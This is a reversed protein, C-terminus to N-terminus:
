ECPDTPPPSAPGPQGLLAATTEFGLGISIGDCTRTPDQVGEKMIDSAQRIQTAISDFTTGSCLSSSLSGALQKLSQVFEETDLVGGINGLTGTKHDPSLQVTFRGHHIALVLGVGSTQQLVTLDGLDTGSVLTNGVLYSFLFSQKASGDPKLLEPFAHWTYTGNSLEADTPAIVKGDEDVTGKVSLFQTNLLTYEAKAGLKNAAILISYSGDQMSLSASNSPDASVGSIIQMINKGYSNDLGGKGSVFVDKKKAGQVPQCHYSNDVTSTLGDIDFGYDQWAEPDFNGKRDTEGLFIKTFAQVALGAGDPASNAPPGPPLAAGAPDTRYKDQDAPDFIPGAPAICTFDTAQPLPPLLGDAGVRLILCTDGPDDLPYPFPKVLAGDLEACARDASQTHVRLVTPNLEIDSGSIANAAGPIDVQGFSLVFDGQTVQASATFPSGATENLSTAATVLPTLTATVHDGTPALKTAFLISKSPDGNGLSLLCYSVFSGELPANPNGAAGAGGPGQGATGQASALDDPTDTSSCASLLFPLLLPFRIIM